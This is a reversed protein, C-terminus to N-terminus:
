RDEGAEGESHQERYVDDVPLARDNPLLGLKRLAQIMLPLLLPLPPQRLCINLRKLRQLRPMLVRVSTSSSM